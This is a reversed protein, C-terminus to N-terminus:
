STYYQDFVGTNNVCGVEYRVNSGIFPTVAPAVVTLVAAAAGDLYKVATIKGWSSLGNVISPASLTFSVVMDDPVLVYTGNTQTIKLVKM